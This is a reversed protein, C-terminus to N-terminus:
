RLPTARTRESALRGSLLPIAWLCYRFPRLNASFFPSFALLAQLLAGFVLHQTTTGPPTSEM